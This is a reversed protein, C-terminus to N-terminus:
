ERTVEFAIKSLPDGFGYVVSQIVILAQAVAASRIILGKENM